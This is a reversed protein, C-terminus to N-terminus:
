QWTEGYPNARDYAAAEDCACIALPLECKDCDPTILMVARRLANSVRASSSEGNDDVLLIESQGVANRTVDAILFGPVHPLNEPDISVGSATVRWGSFTASSWHETSIIQM